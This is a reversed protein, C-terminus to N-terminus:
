NSNNIQWIADLTLMSDASIGRDKAKQQIQEIWKADGKIAM